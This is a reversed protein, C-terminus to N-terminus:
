RHAEYTNYVDIHLLDISEAAFDDLADEFLMRKLTSFDRYNENHARVEEWVKEDYASTHADGRWTDVAFCRSSLGNERVSQCFCFYSVGTQTGLEVIVDPRLADVLDYGFALHDVWTSFAMRKPLLLLSKPLYPTM